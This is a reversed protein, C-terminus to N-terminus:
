FNTRVRKKIVQGFPQDTTYTERDYSLTLVGMSLLAGRRYLLGTWESCRVPEPIETGRRLIKISSTSTRRHGILLIQISAGGGAEVKLESM